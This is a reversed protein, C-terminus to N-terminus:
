KPPIARDCGKFVLRDVRMQHSLIRSGSASCGANHVVLLAALSLVLMINLGEVGSKKLRPCTMHQRPGCLPM